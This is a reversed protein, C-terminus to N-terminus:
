EKFWYKTKAAWTSKPYKKHLVDYAQKSFRGTDKDTCGYRTARAVALHLAEPARPDDPKTNAWRVAQASLYNPATGLMVLKKWESAAAGKEPETLFEPSPTEKPKAGTTEPATGFACWWNDRFNDIEALPARRGINSDVAPRTGPFKLMLYIAAFKRADASDASLYANLDDKLEPYSNQVVPAIERAAQEDDTLAARAWVALVLERRLHSPLTNSTAAQKLVTLPMKKNLVDAADQDFLIRGSAVEKLLKDESADDFTEPLERGDIDYTVGSPVRQAYKLFEDLNRALSMRLSLFQNRASPPLAASGAGVLADLQKRAEERKDSEILLRLSHFAASPYAPSSPRIRAAAEVLSPAKPHTAAIKSIAAVLWALSSTKEYRALSHNLAARDTVQFTLVWDTVDDERGVAPLKEFTREEEEDDVYKDLLMTYDWVDQKLGSGAGKKIITQALERLREEPSLRFRVLNVMRRAAPHISALSSDSLVKKLQAEAEAMVTRDVEDAKAILTARRVLARAVLYPAVQRWPSATNAAIETFLKQAQDHKGAYFNAAAIQYNREAQVAPPANAAAPEPITPAGSCNTFVQDQAQVWDKVETSTAGFREILRKLTAAATRFADPPCNAYQLFYDKSNDTRYAEIEDLKSAGPIKARADLWTKAWNEPDNEYFGKLRDDWLSVVAKQEQQDLAAGTLYRYAVVLYSRAYGPALVGLNGAAFKDLPIDPHVTYTFVASAAFPGCGQQSRPFFLLAAAMLIVVFLKRLRIAM